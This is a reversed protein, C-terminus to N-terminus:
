LDVPRAFSPAPAGRLRRMARSALQKIADASKGVQAALEAYSAGHVKASVLVFREEASLAGLLRGVEDRDGLANEGHAASARLDSPGLPVERHRYARRVDDVLLRHAIQFLWPAFPRQRDYDHRARHVRLFLDQYLDQARESSGTRKIFYAYVRREYRGFLADFAGGDGDAYRGM